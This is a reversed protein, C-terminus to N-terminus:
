GQGQKGVRRECSILCFTWGASLRPMCIPGPGIPGTVIPGPGLCESSHQVCADVGPHELPQMAGVKLFFECVENINM